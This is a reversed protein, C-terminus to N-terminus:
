SAPYSRIEANGVQRAQWDVAQRTRRKFLVTESYKGGPNPRSHETFCAFRRGYVFGSGSPLHLEPQQREQKREVDYCEDVSDVQAKSRQRHVALQGNGALLESERCSNKEPAVEEEFDGTVEDKV